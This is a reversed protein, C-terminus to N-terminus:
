EEAYTQSDIMKDMKTAIHEINAAIKNLSNTIASTDTYNTQPAAFTQIIDTKKKILKNNKTNKNVKDTDEDTDENISDKITNYKDTIKEKISDVSDAITKFEELSANHKHTDHTDVIIKNKTKFYFYIVLLILIIIICDTPIKFSSLSIM